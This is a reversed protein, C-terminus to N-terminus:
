HNQWYTLHQVKDAVLFYIMEFEIKSQTRKSKVVSM